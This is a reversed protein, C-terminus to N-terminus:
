IRCPRGGDLNNDAYVLVLAVVATLWVPATYLTTATLASLLLAGVLLGAAAALIGALLHRRTADPM